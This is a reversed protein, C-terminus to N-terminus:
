MLEAYATKRPGRIDDGMSPQRTEQLTPRDPRGRRTRPKRRPDTNDEGMGSRIPVREPAESQLRIFHDNNHNANPETKTTRRSTPQKSAGTSSNRQLKDHPDQSRALYIRRTDTIMILKVSLLESM